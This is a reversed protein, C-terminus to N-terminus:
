NSAFVNLPTVCAVMLGTVIVPALADLTSAPKLQYARGYFFAAAGGFFLGGALNFGSNIPWIIGLLNDRYAPWYIAVFTLRAGVIGAILVATALGTIREPDQGLRKAIREALSLCLWAGIIYTFAATPIVLPGLNIAPFM